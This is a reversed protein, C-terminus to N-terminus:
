GRRRLRIRGDEKWYLDILTHQSEKIKQRTQELDIMDSLAHVLVAMEKPELDYAATTTSHAYLLKKPDVLPDESTPGDFNYGFMKLEAFCNNQVLERLKDTYYSRYDAKKRHGGNLASTNARETNQLELELEELSLGNVYEEEILFKAIGKAFLESKFIYDVGCFGNDGFLQYYIFFQAENPSIGQKVGGPSSNIFRFNPDCWKKVFDEFSGIGHLANLNSWGAPGGGPVYKRLKKSVDGGPQFHYMSVLHDFPNRCSSVKLSHGFHTDKRPPQPMIVVKYPLNDWFYRAPPAALRTRWQEPVQESLYTHRAGIWHRGTYKELVKNLWSGGAKPVHIHAISRLM